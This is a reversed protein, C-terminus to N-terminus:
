SINELQEPMTHPDYTSITLKGRGLIRIKIERITLLDFFINLYKRSFNPLFFHFM